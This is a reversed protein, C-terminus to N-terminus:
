SLNISEDPFCEFIILENEDDFRKELERIEEQHKRANFEMVESTDLVSNTERPHFLHACMDLITRRNEPDENDQESSHTSYIEVFESITDSFNTLEMQAGFKDNALATLTVLIHIILTSETNEARLLDLLLQMIGEVEAQRCELYVIGYTSNVLNALIASGFDLCYPHVYDKKLLHVQLLEQCIWQIMGSDILQNSVAESRLSVKQLIGLAFRQHASGTPSGTTIEIFTNITSQQSHKLVTAVGKPVSVLYCVLAMVYLQVKHNKLLSNLNSSFIDHNIITEIFKRRHKPAVSLAAARLKKLPETLQATDKNKCSQAIKSKLALLQEESVLDQAEKEELRSDSMFLQYYRNLQEKYNHTNHKTHSEAKKLLDIGMAILQKGAHLIVSYNKDLMKLQKDKLEERKAYTQVGHMAAYLKPMSSIDEEKWKKRSGPQEQCFASLTDTMQHYDLYEKIAQQIFSEEM